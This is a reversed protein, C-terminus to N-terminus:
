QARRGPINRYGRETKKNEIRFQVFLVGDKEEQEPVAVEFEQEKKMKVQYGNETPVVLSIGNNKEPIRFDCKEVDEALEEKVQEASVTGDKTVAYRTFVLQNYPSIWDTMNRKRCRRIRRMPLRHQMKM